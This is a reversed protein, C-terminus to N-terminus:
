NKLRGADIGGSLALALEAEQQLLDYAQKIHIEQTRAAGIAFRICFVGNLITQTMLIDKRASIRAYFLKNITNLTELSLAPQDPSSSKPDIRFVSLALTPPTVFSLIDSRAILDAFYENL